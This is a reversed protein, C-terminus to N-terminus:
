LKSEDSVPINSGINAWFASLLVFVIKTRLSKFFRALDLVLLGFSTPQMHKGSLLVFAGLLWVRHHVHLMLMLICLMNWEALVDLWYGDLVLSACRRTARWWGHSCFRASERSLSLSLSLSALPSSLLPSCLLPSSLLPSLSLLSFLSFLKSSAFVSLCHTGRFLHHFGCPRCRQWRRDITTAVAYSVIQSHLFFARKLQKAFRTRMPFLCPTFSSASSSPSLSVCIMRIMIAIREQSRSSGWSTLTWAFQVTSVSPATCFSAICLFCRHQLLCAGVTCSASCTKSHELGLLSQNLRMRSSSASHLPLLSAARCCRLLAAAALRRPLLLATPPPTPCCCSLAAAASRRLQAARLLLAVIVATTPAACCIPAATCGHLLAARCTRHPPRPTTLRHRPLRCCSPLRKLWRPPRSLLWRPIGCSHM